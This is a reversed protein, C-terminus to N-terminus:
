ANLTERKVKLRLITNRYKLVLRQEGLREAQPHALLGLQVVNQTVHVDGLSGGRGLQESGTM